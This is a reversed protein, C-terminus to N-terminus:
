VQVSMELEADCQKLPLTTAGLLSLTGCFQSCIEAGSRVQEVVKPLTQERLQLRWRM